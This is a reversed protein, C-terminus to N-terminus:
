NTPFPSTDKYCAPFVSDIVAEIDPLTMGECATHMKLSQLTRKRVCAQQVGRIQFRVGGRRFEDSFDCDGSLNAARIETCAMHRPDSQSMHVRCDDWAHILEHSIGRSWQHQNLFREPVGPNMVVVKRSADYAGIAPAGAFVDECVVPQAGLACGRGDLKRLLANVRPAAPPICRVRARLCCMTSSPLPAASRAYWCHTCPFVSRLKCNKRAYDVMKMCQRVARPLAAVPADGRELAGADM